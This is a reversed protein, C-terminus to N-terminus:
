YAPQLGAVIAEAIETRTQRFASKPMALLKARQVQVDQPSLRNLLEVLPEADPTPITWGLGDSVREGTESGSVAISPCGFYSAEYIRNPLLWSSNTGWQWLDQSWVLDCNNYIKLLGNPYDYPGHWVINKHRSLVSDFDPLAHEHVVGHFNLQVKSGLREAVEALLALSRACRLTGVWGVKMPHESSWASRPKASSPEPRPLSGEDLWVKNEVLTVPGTWGQLPRFYKTVFSPSSVILAATQSLLRREAFRFIWGKFGRQTMLGHIDLCEYILAPRPRVMFRAFTALALMDLNRAVIVDSGALKKRSKFVKLTSSSVAIIRRLPNENEAEGLHVNGWFPEFDRNMNKRRMTFGVVSFGCDLYSRMRRIFSAEAADPAFVLLRIQKGKPLVSSFPFSKTM